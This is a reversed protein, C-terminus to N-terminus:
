DVIKVALAVFPVGDYVYLQPITPVPADTVTVGAVDVEYV